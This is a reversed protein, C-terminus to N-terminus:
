HGSSGESLVSVLQDVCSLTENGVKIKCYWMWKKTWVNVFVFKLRYSQVNKKSQNRVECAIWYKVQWGTKREDLFSICFGLSVLCAIISVRFTKSYGDVIQEILTIRSKQIKSDEQRSM